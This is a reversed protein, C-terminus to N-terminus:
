FIQCKCTDSKLPDQIAEKETVSILSASGRVLSDSISAEQISPSSQIDEKIIERAVIISDYSSETQIYNYSQQVSRLM